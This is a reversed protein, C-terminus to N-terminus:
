LFTGGFDSIEDGETPRRTISKLIFARLAPRLNQPM